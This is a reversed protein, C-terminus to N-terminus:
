DELKVGVPVLKADDVWITGTGTVYIYVTFDKADPKLRGELKLQTWEGPVEQQLRGTAGGEFNLFIRNGPTGKAWITFEYGTAGPMVPIKATSIGIRGAKGTCTIRASYKGSHVNEKESEWMNEYQGGWSWGGWWLWRSRNKASNKNIEEFGANQIFNLPPNTDSLMEPEYTGALRAELMKKTQQYRAETMLGEKKVQEIRRLAAQVRAKPWLEKTLKEKSEAAWTLMAGAAVLLVVVASWRRVSRM